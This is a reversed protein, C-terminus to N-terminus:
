STALGRGLCLAVCVCFSCMCVGFIWARLPIRVWSGLTRALSSLEYVARSSHGARRLNVLWFHIHIEYIYM